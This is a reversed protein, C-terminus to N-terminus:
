RIHFVFVIFEFYKDSFVLITFESAGIEKEFETISDGAKIDGDDDYVDFNNDRLAKVITDKIDSIHEWGPHKSDN